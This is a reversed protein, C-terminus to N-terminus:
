GQKSSKAKAHKRGRKSKNNCDACLLKYADMMKAVMAQPCGPRKRYDCTDAWMTRSVQETGVWIDWFPVAEPPPRGAVFPSKGGESGQELAKHISDTAANALRVGDGDDEEYCFVESRWKGDGSPVAAMTIVVRVM